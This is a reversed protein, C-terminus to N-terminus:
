DFNQHSWGHPSGSRHAEAQRLHGLALSCSVLPLTASMNPWTRISLAEVVSSTPQAQGHCVICAYSPAFLASLPLFVM